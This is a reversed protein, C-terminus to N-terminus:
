SEYNVIAIGTGVLVMSAILGFSLGEGLLLNSFLVGFVPTIFQFVGVRSAIYRQFLLTLVIFGIGAVMVGQYLIGLIVRSDFQYHFDREFFFSLLFFVPISLAAQWLLLKAPHIGQTLIKIYV